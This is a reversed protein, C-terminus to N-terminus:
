IKNLTLVSHCNANELHLGIFSYLQDKIEHSHPLQVNERYKALEGMHAIGIKSPDICVFKADNPFMEDLIYSYRLSMQGQGTEFEKIKLGLKDETWNSVTWSTEKRALSNVKALAASNCLTDLPRDRRTNHKFAYNATFNEFDDVGFEAYPKQMKMVADTNLLGRTGFRENSKDYLFKGNLLTREWDDQHQQLMVLKQHVRADMGKIVSKRKAALEKIGMFDEILQIVNYVDSAERWKLYNTTGFNAENGTKRATGLRYLTYGATPATISTTLTGDSQIMSVVVDTTSAGVTPAATVVFHTNNERCWLTSDIEIQTHVKNTADNTVTITNTNVSAVTVEIKPADFEVVHFIESIKEVMGQGAKSLLTTFINRGVFIDAFHLGFDESYILENLNALSLAGEIGFPNGTRSKQWYASNIVPM